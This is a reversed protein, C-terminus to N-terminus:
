AYQDGQKRNDWIWLKRERTFHPWSNATIYKPCWFWTSCQSYSVSSGAPSFVRTIPLLNQFTVAPEHPTYLQPNWVHGQTLSQNAFPTRLEPTSTVHVELCNPFVWILKTTEWSKPYKLIEHILKLRISSAENCSAENCRVKGNIPKRFRSLKCDM